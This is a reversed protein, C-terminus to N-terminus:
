TDVCSPGSDTPDGLMLAKDYWETNDMYPTKEYNLIKSVITQFEFISNFSLRGILVDALIDDGELLTYYQDGEGNYQGPDIHGTPISFNGGADGVLCVFEPPNQWNDYADQIYNKIQNLQTGTESTSAAVVEFGKQHKWERMYNLTQLVSANEPYIFLYSPQQYEEDRTIISSYNVITSEYIPEFFRSKKHNITKPNEGGTRSSTIELEINKIIKLEKKIPDYQFPNITLNVIRFDRMIAPEGIEVIKGPFIEGNKYFEEDIVFSRENPQSESILRQRPYVDINSIIEEEFSLVNVSVEGQDPVAVLRSFRPLDPKGIELFEGSDFYSIKEYNTGDEFIKEVRYGDLSFEIETMELNSSLCEFLEKNMNESINVNKTFLNMGSLFLVLLFVKKVNGGM